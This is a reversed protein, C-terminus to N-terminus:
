HQAATIELSNKLASQHRKEGALGIQPTQTRRHTHITRQIQRAKCIDRCHLQQDDAPLEFRFKARIEHEATTQIQSKLICHISQTAAARSLDAVSGFLLEEPSHKQVVRLSARGGVANLDRRAARLASDQGGPGKLGWRKLADCASTTRRFTARFKRFVFCYKSENPAHPARDTLERLESSHVCPSAGDWSSVTQNFSRRVIPNFSSTM